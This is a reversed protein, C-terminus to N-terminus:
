QRKMQLLALAAARDEAVEFLQDMGVILLIGWVETSIGTLFVRRDNAVVTRRVRLLKTIKSSDILRLYRMDVVVDMPRAQSLQQTLTDLEETLQPDDGMELIVIQDSWQQISM